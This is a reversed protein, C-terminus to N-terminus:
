VIEGAPAPLPPTERRTKQTSVSYVIVAGIGALHTMLLLYPGAAPVLLSIHIVAMGLVLGAARGPARQQFRAPLLVGAVLLAMVTMGTADAVVLVAILFAGLIVALSSSFFLTSLFLILISTVGGNFLAAIRIRSLVGQAGQLFRPALGQAMLGFGSHSLFLFLAFLAAYPVAPQSERRIQGKVAAGPSLVPPNESDYLLNGEIVAGPMLTIETATLAANGEIVGKLTAPGSVTAGLNGEIVGDLVVASATLSANGGVVTNTGMQVSDCRLLLNGHVLGDLVSLGTSFVRLDDEARGTFSFKGAVAGWVDGQFTGGLDASAARFFLDHRVTGQISIERMMTWVEEPLVEQPAVELRTSRLAKGGPPAPRGGARFGAAGALM